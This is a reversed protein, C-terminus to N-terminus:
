TVLVTIRMAEAGGESFAITDAAPFWMGTNLDGFNAISPLLATGDGFSAVGNVSLLADPATTGIGVNGLHIETRM